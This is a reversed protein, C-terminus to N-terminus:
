GNKKDDLFHGEYKLLTAHDNGYIFVGYGNRKGDKFNGEYSQKKNKWEM